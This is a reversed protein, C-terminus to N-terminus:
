TNQLSHLQRRNRVRSGFNSDVSGTPITRMFHVAHFHLRGNATGYEPVCFYKNKKKLCIDAYSIGLHSSNLRTSKRDKTRGAPRACLRSKRANASAKAILTGINGNWVQSGSAWTSAGVAPLTIRAPTSRLIPVYPKTRNAIGRKGSAACSSAGKIIWRATIPIM